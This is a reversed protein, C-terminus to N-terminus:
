PTQPPRVQHFDDPCSLKYGQSRHCQPCTAFVQDYNAEWNAQSKRSGADALLQRKHTEIKM